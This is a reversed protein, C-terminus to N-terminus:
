GRSQVFSYTMIKVNTKKIKAVSIQVTTMGPPPPPFHYTQRGAFIDPPALARSMATSQLWGTLRYDDFTTFKKVILKLFM